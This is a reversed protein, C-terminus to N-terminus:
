KDGFDKLARRYLEKAKARIVTVQARADHDGRKARTDIFTLWGELSAGPQGQLARQREAVYWAIPTLEGYEPRRARRNPGLVAFLIAQTRHDCRALKRRIGRERRAAELKHEPIVDASLAEEYSRGEMLCRLMWGFSSSLGMDGEAQNWFWCLDLESRRLPKRRDNITM